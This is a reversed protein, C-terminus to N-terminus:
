EGLCAYHNEDVQRVIVLDTLVISFLSLAVDKVCKWVLKPLGVYRGGLCIERSDVCASSIPVKLQGHFLSM